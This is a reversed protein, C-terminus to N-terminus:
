NYYYIAPTAKKKKWVSQIMDYSNVMDCLHQSM